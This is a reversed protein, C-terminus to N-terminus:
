KKNLLLKLCHVFNGEYEYLYDGQNKELSDLCGLVINTINNWDLGSNWNKLELVCYQSVNNNEINKIHEIYKKNFLKDAEERDINENERMHYYEKGIIELEDYDPKYCLIRNNHYLLPVLNISRQQYKMDNLYLWKTYYNNVWHFVDMPDFIQCFQRYTMYCELFLFFEPPICPFICKFEPNITLEYYQTIIKNIKKTSLNKNYCEQTYKSKDYYLVDCIEKMLYDVKEQPYLELIINHDYEEIRKLVLKKEEESKLKRNKLENKLDVETTDSHRLNDLDFHYFDM